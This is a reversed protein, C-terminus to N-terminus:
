GAAGVVVRARRARRQAEAIAADLRAHIRRIRRYTTGDLGLLVVDGLAERLAVLERLTFAVRM